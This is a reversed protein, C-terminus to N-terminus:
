SLVLVSVVYHYWPITLTLTDRLSKTKNSERLQINNNSMNDFLKMSM